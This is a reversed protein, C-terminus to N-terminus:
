VRSSFEDYRAASSVVIPEVDEELMYGQRVLEVAAQRIEALFAEKSEYREEISPRPDGTARRAAATVPFPLTAGALVLPQGEGGIDAHRANWGTYTALPAELDPLRIGGLDNGDRDVAPVLDPYPGLFDPPFKTICWPTADQGYDFSGVPTLPEQRRVGPIKELSQLAVDRPVATGDARRPHKSAPPTRGDRVWSALNVLAARVLPQYSLSNYHYLARSNEPYSTTDTIPLPFGGGHQNGAFHYIRENEPTELDGGTALDTHILAGQLVWYEASTNAYIIKPLNGSASARMQLGDTKGTTPDMQPNGAYPFLNGPAPPGVFSPQGFRWNAAGRRAGAIESLMGDFVLRGQEDECLGLYLMQRLFYGAQSVGFGLTFDFRGASTNGDSQSSHRLFSAIDRTAALGIGTLPAEAATYVVEYFLGAQLGDPYYVWNPDPALKDDELRSFSWDERSIVDGKAWPHQRVILTAEPENVDLAPITRHGRDSLMMAQTPSNPQLMCSVRGTVPKGDIQAEPANIGLLEGNSIVDHQWGCWGVTYGQRLIWGDGADPRAAWSRPPPTQNLRFVTTRGRNPIDMLLTRNGQAPDQPRLLHFDASFHVRGDGSRPALDLDTIVQNLVLDPDLAFHAAGQLLEYPGTDGFSRGGEFPESTLDLKTVAM